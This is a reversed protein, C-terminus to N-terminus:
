GRLGAEYAASILEESARSEFDLRPSRVRRSSFVALRKGFLRERAALFSCRRRKNYM